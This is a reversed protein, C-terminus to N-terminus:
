SCIVISHTSANCAVCDHRRIPLASLRKAVTKWKYRPELPPLSPLPKLGPVAQEGRSRNQDLGPSPGQALICQCVGHTCYM